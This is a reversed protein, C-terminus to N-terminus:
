NVHGCKSCTTHGLSVRKGCAHCYAPGLGMMALGLVLWAPIVLWYLLDFGQWVYASLAMTPLGVLLAAGLFSLWWFRMSLLNNWELDRWQVSRLIERM